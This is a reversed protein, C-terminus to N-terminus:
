KEEKLSFKATLKTEFLAKVFPKSWMSSGGLVTFDLVFDKQIGGRFPFLAQVMKTSFLVGRQFGSHGRSTGFLLM